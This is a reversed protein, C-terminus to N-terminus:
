NMFYQSRLASEIKKYVAPLEAAKGIFFADAGTDAAIERIKSKLGVDLFSLDLGIFFVPVGASRAYRRVIDYDSHSHNDKGDTLIVLAKRGPVSRFQYLAMVVSDYLATAGRASTEAIARVLDSKRHTM